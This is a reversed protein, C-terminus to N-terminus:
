LEKMKDRSEAALRQLATNVHQTESRSSLDGKLSLDPNKISGVRDELVRLFSLIYEFLM